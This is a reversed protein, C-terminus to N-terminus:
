KAFNERNKYAQIQNLSFMIFCPFINIRVDNKYEISIILLQSFGRPIIKFTGDILYNRHEPAIHNEILRITAFSAFIHFAYGDEGRDEVVSDVYFQDQNNLTKGYLEYTAPDKLFEEVEQNTTPRQPYQKDRLRYLEREVSTLKM